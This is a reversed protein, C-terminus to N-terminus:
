RRHGQVADHHSAVEQERALREALRREVWKEVTEGKERNTVADLDITRGQRLVAVEDATLRHVVPPTVPGRPPEPREEPPRERLTIPAFGTRDLVIQCITAMTKSAPITGDIM